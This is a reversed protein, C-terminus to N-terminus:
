KLPTGTTTRYDIKSIVLDYIANMYNNNATRLETEAQMIELTSGVGEKYKLNAKDYIKQALVLNEKQNIAQQINVEYSNIANTYEFSAYRDFNAMDNKAKEIKINTERIKSQTLGGAFIPVRLNFGYVSSPVWSNNVPLNSQFFNFESRLTSKQNQYFGVLSPLSSAKYRQKDLNGLTISQELLKHEIRNSSSFSSKAIDDVSLSNELKELDETLEIETELSLGMQMKLANKTILIANELKEKQLKLNRLSLTLRDVDLSEVFGEKNMETVDYLSKELLTINTQILDLNKQTSVATVYAKAVNLQADRLAKQKLLDSMGMFAKSARLGVVYTGDFILQSVSFAANSSFEQQFRLFIFDPASSGPTKTFNNVWNGPINLYQQFGASASVQPLGYSTTQKVTEQAIQVDYQANLYSLNNQETFALAEQLSFQKVEQARLPLQALLLSLIVIRKMNFKRLHIKGNSKM